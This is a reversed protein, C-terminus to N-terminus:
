GTIDAPCTAFTMGGLRGSIYNHGDKASLIGAAGGHGEAVSLKLGDASITSVPTDPVFTNCYRVFNGDMGEGESIRTVRGDM